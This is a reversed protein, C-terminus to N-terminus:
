TIRDWIKELTEAQSATLSKGDALWHKISDIFGLEWDNLKDSRNECDEVMQAHEDNM